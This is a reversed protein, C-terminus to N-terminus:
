RCRSCSAGSSSGTSPTSSSRRAPPSSSRPRPGAGDGAAGLRPLRLPADPQDLRLPLPDDGLEALRDDRRRERRRVAVWGAEVPHNRLWAIARMAFPRSRPRPASSRACGGSASTSSTRALTSRTAGSRPSCASGASWRAPTSSSTTFCGSSATPCTASPTAWARRAGHSTSRSGDAAVLNREDDVRRRAAARPRARAARRARVAEAPLGAGLEFGRLKTPLDARASLILM